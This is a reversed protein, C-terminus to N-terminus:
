QYISGATDINKKEAKCTTESLQERAKGCVNFCFRSGLNSPFFNLLRYGNSKKHENQLLAVDDLNSYQSPTKVIM